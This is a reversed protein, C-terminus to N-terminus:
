ESYGNSLMKHLAPVFDSMWGQQDKAYEEFIEHLPTSGPPEEIKNLECQPDAKVWKHKGIQVASWIVGKLLLQNISPLYKRSKVKRSGNLLLGKLVQVDMLYDMKLLKLTLTCVLKLLYLWKMKLQYSCLDKVDMISSFLCITMYM